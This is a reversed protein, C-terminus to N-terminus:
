INEYDIIEGNYEIVYIYIEDKLEINKYKVHVDPVEDSKYWYFYKIPKGFSIVTRASEDQMNLVDVIAQKHMILGNNNLVWEKTSFVNYGAYFSASDIKETIIDKAIPSVKIIGVSKTIYTVLIIIFIIISGCFVMIKKKM